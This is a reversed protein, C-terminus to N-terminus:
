ATYIDPDWGEPGSLMWERTSKSGDGVQDVSCTVLLWDRGAAVKVFKGVNPPTDIYGLNNMDSAVDGNDDEKKTIVERFLM